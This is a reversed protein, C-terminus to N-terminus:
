SEVFQLGVNDREFGVAMAITAVMVVLTTGLAAQKAARENGKPLASVIAAGALPLLMLLSLWKM